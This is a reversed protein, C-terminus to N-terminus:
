RKAVPTITLKGTNKNIHLLSGDDLVYRQCIDNEYVMEEVARKGKWARITADLQKQTKAKM